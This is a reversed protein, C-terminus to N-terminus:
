KIELMKDIEEKTYAYEGMDEECSKAKEEYKNANEMDGYSAYAKQLFVSEFYDAVAKYEQFEKMNVGPTNENTKIDTLLLQYDKEHIKWMMSETKVIFPEDETVLRHWFSIGNYILLLTLLSILIIPLKKSKQKM